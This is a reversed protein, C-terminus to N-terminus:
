VITTNRRRRDRCTIETETERLLTRQDVAACVPSGAGHVIKQIAPAVHSVEAVGAVNQRARVRDLFESNLGIGVIGFVSSKRVAYNVHDCLRAGVLKVTRQVFENTIVHEICIFPSGCQWCRRIVAILEAARDAARDFFVLGKEESRVGAQSLDCAGEHVSRDHRCCQFAHTIEPLRTRTSFWLIRCRPSAKSSSRHKRAETDLVNNTWITDIRDCRPYEIIENRKRVLHVWRGAAQFHPLATNGIRIVGILKQALDIMLKIVIM